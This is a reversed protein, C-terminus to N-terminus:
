ARVEERVSQGWRNHTCTPLHVQTAIAITDSREIQRSPMATMSISVSDDPSTSFSAVFVFLNRVRIFTTM